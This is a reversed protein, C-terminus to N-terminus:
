SWTLNVNNGGAAATAATIRLNDSSNTPNTGALYEEKNSLGDGDPDADPNVGLTGFYTREWADPLGNANSDTGGPITDTQLVAFTNSLSIWGCNRFLILRSPQRTKLGMQAAG